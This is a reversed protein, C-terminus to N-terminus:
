KKKKKKEEERETLYVSAAEKASVGPTLIKVVVRVMESFWWFHMGFLVEAVPVGGPFSESDWGLYHTSQCLNLIIDSTQHLFLVMIGCREQNISYSGAVLIISATHHTYMLLWDKNREEFFRCTVAATFWTGLNVGYIMKLFASAPESTWMTKTDTWWIWNNSSFLSYELYAFFTMQILTNIMEHFRNYRKNLDEKGTEKFYLAKFVIPLVKHSVFNLAATALAGASLHILSSSSASQFTSIYSLLILLDLLSLYAASLM